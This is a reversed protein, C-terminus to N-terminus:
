RPAWGAPPGVHPAREKVRGGFEEVPRGASDVEIETVLLTFVCRTLVCACIAAAGTFVCEPPPSCTM